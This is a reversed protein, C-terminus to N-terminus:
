SCLFRNYNVVKNRGEDKAKYLAEDAKNLASEFEEDFSDVQYSGLSITFRIVYEKYVFSNKQVANRVKQAINCLEEQNVNLICLCFEEGGVRGFIDEERICKRTTRVFEKLAFDGAEHGYTDNIHKFHDLDIMILSVSLYHRKAYAFYQQAEKFFARRNLISTLSDTQSMEEFYKKENNLSTVPNIIFYRILFYAIFITIIIMVIAFFVIKMIFKKKEQNKITGIKNISANITNLYVGTGIVWNWPKFLKVVSLKDEYNHTAPNYFKYEITALNNHSKKLANVGLEVFPVAKTGLFVKGDYSPKIPHMIMTYNTDNLWFYGNNGYRLARIDELAKEQMLPTIDSLYRGTGIVWGFPEFVRVLSVKFEYKKTAPNYFKYKIFTSKKHSKKLKEIALSVFPVLPTDKFYHGEYEPKIPHMIIKEDMDNIWFYGSEGYRAYRVLFKIKEKLVDTPYRNKNAEYFKTIQSFLQEQHSVLVSHVTKEIYQPKTQEYYMQIINSALEIKNQLEEQEKHMFTTSFLEINSEVLGDTDEICLLTLMFSIVIILISLLILIKTKLSQINEILM